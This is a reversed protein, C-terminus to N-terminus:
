NKTFNQTFYRRAEIEDANGAMLKENVGDFRKAFGLVSKYPLYKRKTEKRADVFEKKARAYGYRLVVFLWLASNSKYLHGKRRLQVVFDAIDNGDGEFRLMTGWDIVKLKLNLKSNTTKASNVIINGEHLDEHSVKAHFIMRGLVMRVQTKLDNMATANKEFWPNKRFFQNLSSSDSGVTPLVAESSAYIHTRGLLNCMSFGLPKTMWWPAMFEDFGQERYKAILRNWVHVHNRVERQARDAARKDDARETKFQKVILVPVNTIKKGLKNRDGDSM